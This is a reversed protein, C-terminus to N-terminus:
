ARVARAARRRPGPPLVPRVADDSLAAALTVIAHTGVGVVSSVELTGQMAETLRRAIVLGLGAGGERGADAGLRDFPVFLRALLESPIGPGQDIVHISACGDGTETSVRVGSQPPSFRVANAVLNLMVQQLRRRDSRVAVSPGTHEVNVGHREAADVHTDARAPHWLLEGGRAGRVHERLPM